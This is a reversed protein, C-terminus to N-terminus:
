LIYQKRYIAFSEVLADERTEKVEIVFFCSFLCTDNDATSYYLAQYFGSSSCQVQLNYTSVSRESLSSDDTNYM